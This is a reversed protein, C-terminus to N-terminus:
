GRCSGGRRSRAPACGRRRSAWRRRSPPRGPRESRWASRSASGRGNATRQRRSRAGDVIQEDLRAPGLVDAEVADPEGLVVEGALGDVAIGNGERAREGRAGRAHADAERHDLEGEAMGDAEGDLERQEVVQTAAAQIDADAAAREVVLVLEDAVPEAAVVAALPAALGELDQRARPGLLGERVVALVVLHAQGRQSRAHVLPRM